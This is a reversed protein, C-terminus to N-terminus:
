RPRLPRPEGLRSRQRILMHILMLRVRISRFRKRCRTTPPLMGLNRIPRLPIVRRTTGLLPRGLPQCRLRAPNRRCGIPRPCAPLMIRHVALPLLVPFRYVQPRDTKVEHLAAAIQGRLVDDYAAKSAPSTLCIKASAL